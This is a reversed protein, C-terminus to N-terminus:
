LYGGESMRELIWERASTIEMIPDAVKETWMEIMFPGRYNLDALKKFAAVFDVCGCGFPVDRFQGPFDGSVPLTDKLHIAVIKSYGIEIEKPVDNGWASLNGLDPYVTLWPSGILSDYEMFRSISNMLPYDMIEMALMVEASSAWTVAERLGELFLTRTRANSDTYYVDYGALQITRIGLDVSLEIARRM